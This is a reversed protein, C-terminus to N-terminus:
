WSLGFMYLILPVVNNTVVCQEIFDAPMTTKGINTRTQMWGMMKDLSWLSQSFSVTMWLHYNSLRPRVWSNTMPKRWSQLRLLQSAIRRWSRRIHLFNCRMDPKLRQTRLLQPLMKLHKARQYHIQHRHKLIRKVRLRRNKPSRRSLSGTRSSTSKQFDDYRSQMSTM